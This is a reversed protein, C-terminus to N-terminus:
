VAEIHVRMKEMARKEIQRIREASVGYEDALDHLTPKDDGLWRRMVIDKSRDDLEDLAVALQQERLDTQENNSVILAPDFRSDGLQESPALFASDDDDQEFTADFSVDAGSLRSEMERVTKSEVDLDDALQDVEADKM